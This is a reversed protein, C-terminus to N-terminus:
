PAFPSLKPFDKRDETFRPTNYTSMICCLMKMILHTFTVLIDRLM